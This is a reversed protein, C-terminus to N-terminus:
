DLTSQRFPASHPLIPTREETSVYVWVGIGSPKIELLRQTAETFCQYIPTQSFSAMDNESTPENELRCMSTLVTANQLIAAVPIKRLIGQRSVYLM